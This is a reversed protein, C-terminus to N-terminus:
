CAGYLPTRRRSVQPALPPAPVPESDEEPQEPVETASAPSVNASPQPVAGGSSTSASTSASTDEPDIEDEIKKYFSTIRRVDKIVAAEREQKEERKKRKAGGSLYKKKDMIKSERVWATVSRGSLCERTRCPAPGMAVLPKTAMPGQNGHAGPCTGLTGWNYDPRANFIEVDRILWFIILADM